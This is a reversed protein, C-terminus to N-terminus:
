RRLVFLLALVGLLAFVGLCALVGLLAALLVFGLSFSFRRILLVLLVMIDGMVHGRKVLVGWMGSARCLLGCKGKTAAIVQALTLAVRLLNCRGKEHDCKGIKAAKILMQRELMAKFLVEYM